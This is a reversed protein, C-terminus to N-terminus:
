TRGAQRDAPDNWFELRSTKGIGPNLQNRPDLRRYFDALAPEASYVHGVNHEAPYKAGRQELLHCMDSKLQGSDRGFKVLYDQHLVHCFFHGYYIKHLISNEIHQPLTEFWEETNRPLAIDLAILDGVEKPHLRQYRIAAGAVVFRHLFAKDGEERSCEFMDGHDSPFRQRLDDLFAPVDPRAVKLLLHHEYRDRFATMRTPLHPRLPLLRFLWHLLKDSAGGKLGLKRALSDIRSQISFLMPLRRTGLWHIAHFMDKGFQEAINFATRHIYEASIPLATMNQLYDRRLASLEAADNTGIYFVTPDEDKPFTDLRVGFVILKGACGSAEHLNDPNANYRAPTVAETNRIVDVYSDDSARHGSPFEVDSDSFEGAELRTLITEPDDGLRIGLHNVLRLEGDASIEAHLSLETYAPGRQILAGGSNNCVGGLVTAGICSSGIVSHPARAVKALKDELDYLTAGALCVVQRGADILHVGKVRRTSIIVVPRDYEGHPTSGGTLGTNAAQMIIIANAAVCAKAVHWQEILSGPRVVALAPGHGDRFGHRYRATAQADQLVHKRGVISELEQLM